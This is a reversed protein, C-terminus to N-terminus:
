VDFRAVVATINDRGGAANAQAILERCASEPEAHATLLQAIADDALMETLGDSCLLVVDGPEVALRHVDIRIKASDGGVSSTIVHRWRHHAAEAASLAGRKVMEEVLTHDQTLRYLMGERLLYCRSDGVHAVFLEGNLHYALTLTTGMGRLQPREAAVHRVREHAQHLATRFDALARDEAEGRCNGFWALVDLVYTEVSDVALASAEEGAAAGGMGDAVIFLDCRDSGRLTDSQPLSTQEIQLSKILRAILFQDENSERAQGRDTAGFSRVRVLPRERPLEATDFDSHSVVNSQSHIDPEGPM